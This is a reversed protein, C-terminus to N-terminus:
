WAGARRFPWGGGQVRPLFTRHLFHAQPRVTPPSVPGTVGDPVTRSRGTLLLVELLEAPRGPSPRHAGQRGPVARGQGPPPLHRDRWPAAARAAPLRHVPRHRRTRGGREGVTRRRPRVAAHD